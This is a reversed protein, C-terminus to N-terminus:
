RILRLLIIMPRILGQKVIASLLWHNDIIKAIPPSVRYYASVFHKGIERSLLVQDRFSRLTLVDPHHSSGYCATAIFCGSSTGGSKWFKESKREAKKPNQWYLTAFERAKAKAQTPSFGHVKCRKVISVHNADNMMTWIKMMDEAGSFKQVAPIEKDFGSKSCIKNTCKKCLLMNGVEQINGPTTGSGATSYFVYGDGRKISTSCMDCSATNAM